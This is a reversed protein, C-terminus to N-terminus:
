ANLSLVETATGSLIMEIDSAPVDLRRIAEFNEEYQGFYLTIPYDSGAMLHDAGFEMWAAHIAPTSFHTVTDYYFSRMSQSLPEDVPEKLYPTSEHQIREVLMPIAGGLHAVVFKINPYRTAFKRTLLNAILLTDELPAELGNALGAANSLPEVLPSGGGRPHFYITSGRRDAEEFIPAFEPDTPSYERLVVCPLCAGVAGLEDIARQFERVSESVHPLPLAAYARFRDPHARALAAYSDNTARVAEVIQPNAHGGGPQSLIQTQVGAEDMLQIRADVDEPSDSSPPMVTHGPPVLPYAPAPPSVERGELAALIEASKRVAMHAHADVIVPEGNM